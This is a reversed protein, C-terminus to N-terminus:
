LQKNKELKRDSLNQCSPELDYKIFAITFDHPNIVNPANLCNSVDDTDVM